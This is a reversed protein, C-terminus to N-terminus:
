SSAICFDLLLVVVVFFCCYSKSVAYKESLVTDTVLHTNKQVLTETYIGGMRQVKQRIEQKDKKPLHSCTVVCDSMAVNFVPWKVNPITRGETLCVLLCWPGVM